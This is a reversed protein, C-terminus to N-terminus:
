PTEETENPFQEWRLGDLLNGAAKKGIRWSWDGDGWKHVACGPCFPKRRNAEGAIQSEALSEGARAPPAWEGWQKFFFPVGASTCQDRLSRVWDPHMPRAKPGSEGGCIVWGIRPSGVLASGVPRTSVAQSMLPVNTLDVPGLMPEVSVFRVAAPTQLLLPIREDAAKQDEVSVGLWVNPLPWQDCELMLCLPETGPWNEATEWIMGNFVPAIREPRKTLILFTHDQCAAMENFVEAVFNTPVDPHFLDSMSNVFVRQPTRWRPLDLRDPHLMVTSFPLAIHDDEDGREAGSVSIPHTGHITKGFRGVYREAYCHRCGESVKTCGTVPNWVKTAWEIKTDGM